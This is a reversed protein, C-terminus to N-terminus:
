GDLRICPLKTSPKVCMAEVSQMRKLDYTTDMLLIPDQIEYDNHYPPLPEGVRRTHSLDVLITRGEPDEMFNSVSLDGHVINANHLEAVTARFSPLRTELDSNPIKTLHEMRFGFIGDHDRLPNLSVDAIPLGLNRFRKYSFFEERILRRSTPDNQALKLVPHKKVSDLLRVHSYGGLGIATSRMWALREQPSQFAECRQLSFFNGLDPLMSSPQFYVEYKRRDYDVDAVKMNEPTRRTTSTWTASAASRVSIDPHHDRVLRQLPFCNWMSSKRKVQAPLHVLLNKMSLRSRDLGIACLVVMELGAVRQVERLLQEYRYEGRVPQESLGLLSFADQILQKQRGNIEGCQRIKTLSTRLRRMAIRLQVSM